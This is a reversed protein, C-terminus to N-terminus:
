GAPPEGVRLALITIDDRLEGRCFELAAERLRSLIQRPSRGALAAVEGTLRDGFYGLEPNRTDVLGDTFFVLVDGPSLEHEETGLEADAFIGLPLGGGRMQHARGDPRVLVPGPHGACSLTVALAEGRWRMHATCATVFRGGFEEALLIENAGALVAAPDPASHAIVRIAHRAAAGVAAVGEGRGCVDGISVAWGDGSRYADYFDGGMEPSEAVLHLTAIEIGPLSPLEAPLLSARLADTLETRRRVMRDVKIALALQEGLEEVLGLDAMEFHGQGAQRALTLAGYVREGDSVPVSLVSTAGLLMLLPVDGPGNGLVSADEAHAILQSGGTEHVAHPISGPQPDNAAVERALEDSRQDEPGVVFQRRLRHGRVTDVIVWAALEGALLSACRQLTVAENQTANELLLRTVATILAPKRTLGAGVPAGPTGFGADGGGNREGVGRPAAGPQSVAVILRDADGRPRVLGATLECERAGGSTLLECRVRRAAGTRITAALQTHIAARSPLNVFATFPKGTAYGTGTGLLEGAARNVRRVTGDRELLFLPVPADSFMARLLRREAHQAGSDPDGGPGDGGEQIAALADIAADLEALAAELTPRLKAGRLGAAQQLADRRERLAALESEPPSTRYVQTM